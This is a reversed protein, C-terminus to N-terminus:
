WRQIWIQHHFIRIRCYPGAPDAVSSALLLIATGIYTYVPLGGEM